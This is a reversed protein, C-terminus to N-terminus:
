AASGPPIPRPGVMQRVDLSVRAHHGEADRDFRLTGAMRAAIQQVISLGLGSGAVGRSPDGRAFARRLEAAQGEPLGAGADCVDILVQSKGGSSQASAVSLRVPAAGHKLANDILNFLLREILLANAQPLLVAASAPALSLVEPACEFRSVVSRAVAAVDVTDNMKLSGARVFDLFSGILRDAQDINRTIAALHPLPDSRQPLLETALRIRALPSRLDHSVGALLLARELEASRLRELLQHYDDEIARM